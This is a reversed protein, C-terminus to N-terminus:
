LLEAKKAIHHIGQKSFARGNRTRGGAQNIRDTIGQWTMGSARLERISQLIFQEDEDEVLHGGEAVKYGFPAKGTSKGEAKLEQLAASTRESIVEREWQSISAMINILLRGTATSTDLSEATSILDVGKGGDARTAKSLTDLLQALDAISRTLRDLKAILVVDVQGAQIRALLEKMQPRNLNSASEGADVLTEALNLDSIEAQAQIKRQQHSISLGSDAQESTSVRAYGIAVPAQQQQKKM